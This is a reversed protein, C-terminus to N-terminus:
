ELLTVALQEKKRRFWSIIGIPISVNKATFTNKGTEVDWLKLDNEKGGTAFVNDENPSHRMRSIPGGTEVLSDTEGWVKVIGSEVATVLSSSFFRFKM